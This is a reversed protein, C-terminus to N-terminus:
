VVSCAALEGSRTITIHSTWRFRGAILNLQLALPQEVEVSLISFSMASRLGQWSAAARLNWQCRRSIRALIDRTRSTGYM